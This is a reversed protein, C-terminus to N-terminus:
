PLEGEAPPPLPVRRIRAPNTRDLLVGEWHREQVLRKQCESFKGQNLVIGESDTGLDEQSYLTRLFIERLTPLVSELTIKRTSDPIGKARISAGMRGSIEETPALIALDRSRSINGDYSILVFRDCAAAPAVEALLVNLIIPPVSVDEFAAKLRPALGFLALREASVDSASRQFGEVHAMDLLVGRITELDAPHGIGALGIRDYIEFIKPNQHHFTALLIGEVLSIGVVPSARELHEAIYDRRQHIADVWRYPEDFM